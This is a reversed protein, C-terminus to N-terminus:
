KAEKAKDLLEKAKSLHQSTENVIGEIHTLNSLTDKIQSITKNLTTGNVPLRISLVQLAM